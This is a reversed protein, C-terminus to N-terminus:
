LLDTVGLSNVAVTARANAGAGAPPLMEIHLARGAVGLPALDATGDGRAVAGPAYVVFEPTFSSPVFAYRGGPRFLVMGPGNATKVQRVERMLAPDIVSVDGEGRAAVCLERGNPTFFGEHPSRGVYATKGYLLLAKALEIAGQHHPVMMTVFDHDPDGTRLANHMGGHMANMAGAMSEDFTNDTPAAFEAAPATPRRVISTASRAEHQQAQMVTAAMVILMAASILRRNM